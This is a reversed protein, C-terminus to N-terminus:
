LKTICFYIGITTTSSSYDKSVKKTTLASVSGFASNGM